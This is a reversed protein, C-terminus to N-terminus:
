KKLKRKILSMYKEAMIRSDLHNIFHDYTSSKLCGLREENLMLESLISAAEERSNFVFGNVGNEILENNGHHNSCIVPVGCALNELVAMSTGEHRNIEYLMADWSKIYSVKSSFKKVPGLLKVKNKTNEQKKLLQNASKYFRGAGIYEHILPKPLDVKNVWRLWSNSYKISNFSNIRGTRFFNDDVNKAEIGEFKKYDVGNHIVVKEAVATPCKSLVEKMKESVCVIAHCRCFRNHQNSTSYTHNVIIVTYKRHLQNFSGFNSRMLKHLIVVVRNKSQALLKPLSQPSYYQWSINFGSVFNNDVTKSLSIINQKIKPYLQAIANHLEFLSTQGGGIGLGDIVHFIEIPKDM